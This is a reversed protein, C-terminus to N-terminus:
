QLVNGRKDLLISRTTCKCNIRNAGSDWWQLQDAVTYSNGHRDAHHPRTTSTLASIHVVASRLGTEEAMLDTANLKADNYARNIETEAIRQASSLAVDFRSNIEAGIAVTSLGSSIGSNIRQIVQAATTSSLSKISNFNSVYAKNLPDRYADSFVVQNFPIEQPAIRKIFFGAVTAAAILQNFDRVEEATGQRYPLEINSQWYWNFPMRGTQTELLEDNIIFQVSDNLQEQDQATLEYEYFVTQEANQIKTIRRRERPIVKLLDKVRSEARRLRAALRRTGKNRNTAQGTPDAKTKKSM